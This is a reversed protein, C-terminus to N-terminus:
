RQANNNVKDGVVRHGSVVLVYQTCKEPFGKQPSGVYHDIRHNHGWKMAPQHYELTGEGAPAAM